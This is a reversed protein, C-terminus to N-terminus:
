IHYINGVKKFDAINKYFIYEIFYLYIKYFLTCTSNLYINIQPLYLVIINNRRGKRGEFREM